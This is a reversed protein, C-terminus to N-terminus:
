LKETQRDEVLKMAQFSEALRDLGQPRTFLTVVISVTVMNVMTDSVKSLGNHTCAIHCQLIRLDPGVPVCCSQRGHRM